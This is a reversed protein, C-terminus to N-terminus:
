KKKVAYLTVESQKGKLIATEQPIFAYHHEKLQNKLTDSILFEQGLENCRAQIRAATNITDGHYAIEKKYKGVETVIIKGAHMGAKFFPVCGYESQYHASKNEITNKFSFFAELCNENQIGLALPWTLIVEDGVYQYIEAEHQMVVGLDNFCDQILKSYRIHGLREAIATSSQLDIFMFIRQEERPTYFQGTLLKILNNGGLMLNVERLIVLFFDLCLIYFYIAFSGPEFAFTILDITINFLIRCVIYAIIILSCLFLVAYLTRLLILKKLSARKYIREETVIQALGSIGGFFLGFLVSMVATTGFEFRAVGMEITGVGRVISLFIFGLTWGLCYFRLTRWRKNSLSLM